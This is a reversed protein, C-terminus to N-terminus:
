GLAIRLLDCLNQFRVILQTARQIPEASLNLEPIKLTSITDDFHYGDYTETINAYIQNLAAHLSGLLQEQYQKWANKQSLGQVTGGRIQQLQHLCKGGQLVLSRRHGDVFSVLFREIIGRSAGCPGAYHKMCCELCKIAALQCEIPQEVIGEIIKSLHNSSITKGLDPLHISKAVFMSIISYSLNVQATPGRTGCIKVCLSLWLNGKQEILDLQCQKLFTHLLLLGEYKKDNSNLYSTILAVVADLENISQSCFIFLSFNIPIHEFSLSKISM